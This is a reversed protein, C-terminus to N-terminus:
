SCNVEQVADYFGETIVWPTPNLGSPDMNELKPRLILTDFSSPSGSKLVESFDVERDVVLCTQGDARLGTVTVKARGVPERLSSRMAESEALRSLALYQTAAYDESFSASLLQEAEVPVGSTSSELTVRTAEQSVAAIANLVREVYAEDIGDEPIAYPDGDATEPADDPQGTGETPADAVAEDGAVEADDSDSADSDSADAPPETEEETAALVEDLDAVEPDEATGSCASLVLVAGLTAGIRQLKGRLMETGTAVDARM